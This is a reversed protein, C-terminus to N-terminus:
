RNGLYYINKLKNHTKNKESGVDHTIKKNSFAMM